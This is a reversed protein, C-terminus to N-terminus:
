SAVAAGWTRKISVVRRSWVWLLVAGVLILGLSLGIWLGFVGWGMLFCFMYGVPLGILWHGILNCVMPTRTDGTGRLIGTTVVQVGDFLQFVAALLLLSAGVSIVAVDVTFIRMIIRPISLLGLGALGMFGAGLMLAMWGSHEAAEPDHRGLAQGVRVAGASAVGLPVMFTLSAVQMAIQHAALAVPALRGALATAAAFVGVELTIQMAAPLGLRMLRWLRAVELKLPTQWLGTRERREHWLIAVLLVAMMYVRSLTTSWGAGEAGMAPAGLKGFILIWNGFANVLNASIIAFLIPKVQNVAQLYRRFSCFLLLPLLGWLLAKFYPFTQQLVAPDIGWVPLLPFFLLLLLTLPVLLGFSLYVAHLLWAHCEDLRRGGFAQSVLTDLGLLVGMGFVAVTFYLVSGISVGGIAEPSVRGVMITDVVGMMMWGIESLVVPWALKFMPRFESRLDKLALTV